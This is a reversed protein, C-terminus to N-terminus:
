ANAGAARTARSQAVMSSMWNTLDNGQQAPQAPQAQAGGFMGKLGGVMRQWIGPKGRVYQGYQSPDGGQALYQEAQQRAEPGVFGLSGALGQGIPGGALMAGVGAMPNDGLGLMDAAQMAAFMGAVPVLSQAWPPLERQGVSGMVQRVQKQGGPSQILQQQQQQQQGAAVQQLLAHVKHLTAPGQDTRGFPYAPGGPVGTPAGQQAGLAPAGQQAGLAPAGPQTGVAPAAGAPAAPQAGPQPAGPQPQAGFGWYATQETSLPVRKFAEEPPAAVKNGEADLIKGRQTLDLATEVALHDEPNIDPIVRKVATLWKNVGPWLESRKLQASEKPTIDPEKGTLAEGMGRGTSRTPATFSSMNLTRGTKVPTTVRGTTGGPQPAGPAGTQYSFGGGPAVTLTPAAGMPAAKDSHFADIIAKEKAPDLDKVKRWFGALAAPGEKPYRRMAEDLPGLLDKAHEGTALFLSEMRKSEEPRVVGSPAAMEKVKKEKGKRISAAQQTVKGLEKEGKALGEREKLQSIIKSRAEEEPLGYGGKGGRITQYQPITALEKIAQEHPVGRTEAFSRVIDEGIGRAGPVGRMKVAEQFLAPAQAAGQAEEAKEMVRYKRIGLQNETEFLLKHTEGVTRVGKAHRKATALMEAVSGPEPAKPRLSRYTGKAAGGLTGSIARVREAASAYPHLWGGGARLSARYAPLEERVSRMRLEEASSPTLKSFDMRSPDISEPLTLAKGALGVTVPKHGGFWRSLLGPHVTKQEVPVGQHLTAGEPALVRGLGRAIHEKTVQEPEIPARPSTEAKHLKELSSFGHKLKKREARNLPDTMRLTPHSELGARQQRVAEHIKGLVSTEPASPGKWELAARKVMPGETDALKKKLCSVIRARAEGLKTSTNTPDSNPNYIGAGGDGIMVSGAKRNANLPAFPLIIGGKGSQTLFTAQM